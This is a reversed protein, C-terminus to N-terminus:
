ALEGKWYAEPIMSADAYSEARHGCTPCVLTGVAEISPDGFIDPAPVVEKLEFTMGAHGCFTCDDETIWKALVKKSNSM